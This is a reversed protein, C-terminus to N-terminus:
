KKGDKSDNEIRMIEGALALENFLREELEDLLQYLHTGTSGEVVIGSENALERAKDENDAVVWVVGGTNNGDSGYMVVPFSMIVKGKVRTMLVMGLLPYFYDNVEVSGDLFSTINIDAVM